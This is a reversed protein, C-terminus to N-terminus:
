LVVLVLITNEKYNILRVSCLNKYKALLNSVFSKQEIQNFQNIIIFNDPNLSKVFLEIVSDSYNGSSNDLCLLCPVLDPNTGDFKESFLQTLLRDDPSVVEDVKFSFDDFSAIEINEQYCVIVEGNRISNLLAINTTLNIVFDKEHPEISSNGVKSFEEASKILNIFKEEVYPYKNSFMWAENSRTLVDDPIISRTKSHYFEAQEMDNTYYSAVSLWRVPLYTRSSINDFLVEGHPANCAYAFWPKASMWDNLRSYAEGIIVAAEAIEPKLLWAEKAWHLTDVFNERHKYINAIDLLAQYKENVFFSLPLYQKYTTLADDLQGADKYERALYFLYRSNEPEKALGHKLAKINRQTRGTRHEEQGTKLHTLIVDEWRVEILPKEQFEPATINVEHAPGYWRRTSKGNICKWFRTRFYTLSPLEKAFKENGYIYTNQVSDPNIDILRKRLEKFNLSNESWVDDSDIWYVYNVDPHRSLLHDLSSNRAESFDDKWWHRFVDSSGVLTRCTEYTEDSNTGADVAISFYDALNLNAEICSKIRDQEGKVIMHLGIKIDM